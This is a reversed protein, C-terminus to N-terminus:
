DCYDQEDELEGQEVLASNLGEGVLVAVLSKCVPAKVGGMTYVAKALFHLFEEIVKAM